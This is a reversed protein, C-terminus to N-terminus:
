EKRRAVVVFRGNEDNYACTSLTILCDGYKAEVGTDYTSLKKIHEIYNNFEEETTADYFQYYKFVDEEESYIQSYFAAIVEYEADEYITSFQIIPHEMYYSESDYKLLSAFMTGSRMNHGYIIHNATMKEPNMSCNVDMFLLGAGDYEKNFNRHIYYENDQMNQMVPYNITTGEISLWGLFDPNMRYLQEYKEQVKVGDIYVFSVQTIDTQTTEEKKTHIYSQLQKINDQSKKNDIFYKILYVASIVFCIVCILLITNIVVDKKSYRKKNNKMKM